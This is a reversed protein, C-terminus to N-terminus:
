RTSECSTAERTTILEMSNTLKYKLLIYSLMLPKSLIRFNDLLGTFKMKYFSAKGTLCILLQTVISKTLLTICGFDIMYYSLTYNRRVVIQPISSTFDANVMLNSPLSYQFVLLLCTHTLNVNQM